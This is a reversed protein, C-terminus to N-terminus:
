VARALGGAALWWDPYAEAMLSKAAEAEARVAFLAFCTAGSGSMRALRAGPLAELAALVDGIVPALRMAPGQLDNPRTILYDLFADFSAAFDPADMEADSAALPQANLARYVEAASLPVGPNALVVGCSPFGRVARLIEGRGTMLTPCSAVCVPVDSGLSAAIVLLEEYAPAGGNAAAILRLAAAADASGGGIGSAVPLNKELRFHGLALSPFAARVGHAAQLILNDGSLDGAFPGDATLSLADAPQLSVVDGITAFAVLSRIQHFGDGRRGLVELSLNLKASANEQLTTM